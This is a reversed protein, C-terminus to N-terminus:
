PSLVFVGLLMKGNDKMSNKLMRVKQNKKALIKQM